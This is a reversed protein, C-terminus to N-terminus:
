NVQKVAVTDTVEAEADYPFSHVEDTRNFLGYALEFSFLLYCLFPLYMNSCGTDRYIVTDQLNWGFRDIKGDRRRTRDAYQTLDEGYHAYGCGGCM